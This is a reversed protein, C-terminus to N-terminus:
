SISGDENIISPGSAQTSAGAVMPQSFEAPMVYAYYHPLNRGATTLASKPAEFNKFLQPNKMWTIGLLLLAVLLVPKLHGFHISQEPLKKTIDQNM